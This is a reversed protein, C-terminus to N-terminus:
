SRILSNTMASTTIVASITIRATNNEEGSSLGTVIWCHARESGASKTAVETVSSSPLLSIAM